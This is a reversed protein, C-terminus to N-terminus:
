DWRPLWRRRAHGEPTLAFAYVWPAYFLYGTVIVAGWVRLAAPMWRKGALKDTLTATIIHAYFLAPMYHYIFCSRTVALYPLLNLMYGVACFGMVAFFRSFPHNGRGTLDHLHLHPVVRYRAWLILSGVGLLMFAFVPWIVLPNGLLYVSESYTHERNMSYYLIGRLNLPWEWWVSDWHHRQEIRASASVMERNLEALLPWFGAKPAAPDYYTNNVLNRQFEIPMFADGDGTYPLLDFHIKYYFSFISFVIALIGLLEPFPIPRSTFFLSFFSEVAVLGPTALGTFKISVCNACVVGMALVFLLREKRQLYRPDKVLAAMAEKEVKAQTLGASAPEEATFISGRLTEFWGLGRHIVNGNTSAEARILPTDWHDTVAANHDNHRKWWRSALALCVGCWFILQSDILILRSETLNLGDFIFLLSALIGARVSGGFGTVVWYIVPATASGFAAAAVRLWVYRCDPSYQDQINSYSCKTHDYGFFRGVFYLVLKGLPPHIDFLYTGANYQNTFRGFHFEDFVVGTPKDLRYYRTFLGLGLLIAPVWNQYKEVWDTEEFDESSAVASAAARPSHGKTAGGDFDKTLTADTHSPAAKAKDARNRVSNTSM